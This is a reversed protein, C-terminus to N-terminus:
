VGLLQKVGKGFNAKSDTTTTPQVEPDGKIEVKPATGKLRAVEAKLTTVEDSAADREATLTTVQIDLNDRETTLTEYEGKQENITFMLADVRTEMEEFEEGNWVVTDMEVETTTETFSLNSLFNDLREKLTAMNTIKNKQNRKPLEPLRRNTLDASNYIIADGIPNIVEDAFGLEVAEAATLWEGNGNKRDMIELFHGIELGSRKAYIEALQVNIKEFNEVDNKMDNLTGSTGALINHSLYMGGEAIQRTTGAQHIITAISATLGYSRTTIDAGTNNLLQLMSLGHDVNGGLSDINVIITKAELNGLAKLETSLAEKTNNSGTDELGLWEALWDGGIDGTIDVEITGEGANRITCWKSQHIVNM